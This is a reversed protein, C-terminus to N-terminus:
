KDPLQTLKNSFKRKEKRYLTPSIGKFKKFSKSFALPDSYGCSRAIDGVPLDTQHLLEESKRIRFEMLFKQPSTNLHKNFLSTIYTRNLCLYNSIDSFKIYANDYNKEIFEIAKTIYTNEFSNKEKYPKTSISALDSFFLYLLGQLKLENSTSLTSHNLMDILHNKLNDDKDYTFTLNDGYLGISNMYTDVKEGDFSIYLYKWPNDKDAQYFTLKNPNILFGQNKSLKYKQDNVYYTGCGDIIYHILYYPRIAPGYSHGPPCEHIGCTCLFLDKFDRNTLELSFHNSM